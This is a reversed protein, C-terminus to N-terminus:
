IFGVVKFSKGVLFKSKIIITDSNQTDKNLDLLRM